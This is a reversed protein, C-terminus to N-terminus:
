RATEPARALTTPLVAALTDVAAAVAIEPRFRSLYLERGRAAVGRAAARDDVCVAMREVFADADRALYCTVGDVLDPNGLAANEHAVVVAGAALATLIRSRNGIPVSIPAIAAHARGLLDSLDDVFGVHVLEPTRGLAAAAWRPLDGRGAILVRFGGSGWRGLLRPYLQGLLFHFASRSGLAQLTGLFVFTPLTPLDEDGGSAPPAAPWPYPQYQATVGLRALVAESSKSAVIVAAAGALAERYARRWALSSLLALPLRMTNLRRERAAYLAHYWVTQFRLDGLWVVRVGPASRGAWAAVLDLCFSAEAQFGAAAEVAPRVAAERLRVVHRREELFAEARCAVVDVGEEQARAEYEDLAEPTAGDQEALVVSLVDFGAARLGAIYHWFLVTSAGSTPHPVGHSWIALRRGVVRRDRTSVTV